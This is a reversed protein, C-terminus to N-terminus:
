PKNPMQHKKRAYSLADDFNEYVFQKYHFKRNTYTIGFKTMESIPLDEFDKAIEKYQDLALNLDKVENSLAIIQDRLNKENEEIVRSFQDAIFLHDGDEIASSVAKSIITLAGSIGASEGVEAPSSDSLKAALAIITKEGINSEDMNMKWEEFKKLKHIASTCADQKKM